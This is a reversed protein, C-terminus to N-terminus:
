ARRLFDPITLDDPIQSILEDSTVVRKPATTVGPPTAFWTIPKSNVAIAWEVGREIKEAKAFHAKLHRRNQAETREYFGGEWKCDPGDPVTACHLANEGIEGALVRWKDLRPKPAEKVGPKISTESTLKAPASGTGLFRSQITKQRWKEKCEARYCVKQNGANRPMERECALCRHLYFSGHCGKGHFADRPNATPSPLKGRCHRCFHRLEQSTV